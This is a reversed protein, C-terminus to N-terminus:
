LSSSRHTTTCRPRSRIAALRPGDGRRSGSAPRPVAIRAAEHGPTASSPSATAIGAADKATMSVQGCRGWARCLQDRYPAVEVARDGTIMAWERQVCEVALHSAGQGRAPERHDIAGVTRHQQCRHRRQGVHGSISTRHAPSPVPRGHTRGPRPPPILQRPERQLPHAARDPHPHHLRSGGPRGRHGPRHTRHHGRGAAIDRIRAEPNRAIEVLVHGHGTLLTWSGGREDPLSM